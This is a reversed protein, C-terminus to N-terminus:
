RVVRLIEEVSTIGKAARMIGDTLMDKFGNKIAARKIEEKPANKSILSQIEDNIILIESIMERGTYGTQSCKPCGVKRFFLSNSDLVSQFKERLNTPLRTQVKCHPCLKRVLRQAEVAILSGSILYSEAGMDIMRDIASVADNTHLTSFVLHGTLAAQVAIQLTQEDRIEGIMITDPDQRLISRLVTAFDLGIKENVQVQQTMSLKYEVPDEVTVVKNEISKVSNLAAYLTTTKGCGTPGTVLIIGYPTKLAKSFKNFNEESMGLNELNISVKSKDLVRLVLSEGNLTPLTSARFDYEKQLIKASFRGDQPRRREAIDMDCLLKVRSLFPAYIDKDLIFTESLIGDIRNRIICNTPTPEIHVDSARNKIAESLITEILKLVASNENDTRNADNLENRIKNILDKISQSLEVKSLHRDIQAPDCVAVKLIKDQFANQLKDQALIDFPNKFVAYIFNEDESFPMAEHNKLTQAATKDCLRYDIDATDLDAYLLEFKRAASKLFDKADIELIESIQEVELRQKRYLDLLVATLNEIPVAAFNKLAKNFGEDKAKLAFDRRNVESLEVNLAKLVLEFIEDTV